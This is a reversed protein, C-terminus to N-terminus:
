GLRTQWRSNLSVLIFRGSLHSQVHPILGQTEMDEALSALARPIEKNRPLRQPHTLAKVLREAILWRVLRVQGPNSSHSGYSPRRVLEFPDGGVSPACWVDGNGHKDVAFQQSHQRLKFVTGALCGENSRQQQIAGTPVTDSKRIGRAHM